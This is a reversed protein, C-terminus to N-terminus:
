RAVSISSRYRFLPTEGEPVPMAEIYSPNLTIAGAAEPTLSPDAALPYAWAKGDHQVLRCLDVSNDKRRQVLPGRSVILSILPSIGEQAAWKGAQSWAIKYALLREQITDVKESFYFSDVSLTSNNSLRIDLTRDSPIGNISVSYDIIKAVKHWPLYWYLVKFRGFLKQRPMRVHIGNRDVGIYCNKSFASIMRGIGGPLNLALLGFVVSAIAAAWIPFDSKPALAETVGLYTVVAFIMLFLLGALAKLLGRFIIWRKAYHAVVIFGDTKQDM